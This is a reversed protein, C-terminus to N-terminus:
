LQSKTDITLTQALAHLFALPMAHSRVGNAASGMDSTPRVISLRARPAHCEMTM